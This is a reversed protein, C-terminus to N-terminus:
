YLYFSLADLGLEEVKLEFANILSANHLVVGDGQLLVDGDTLSLEYLIEMSFEINEGKTVADHGFDVGGSM